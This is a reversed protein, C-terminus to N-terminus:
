GLPVRFNKSLVGRLLIDLMGLPLKVNKGIVWHSM